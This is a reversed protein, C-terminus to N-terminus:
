CKCLLPFHEYRYKAGSFQFVSPIVRGDWGVDSLLFLDLDRLGQKSRTVASSLRSGGWMSVGFGCYEKPCTSGLLRCAGPAERLALGGPWCGCAATTPPLEGLESCAAHGLVPAKM